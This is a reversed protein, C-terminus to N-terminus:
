STNRSFKDKKQTRPLKRFYDSFAPVQNEIGAPNVFCRRKGIALIRFRPVRIAIKKSGPCGKGLAGPPLHLDSHQNVRDRAVIFGGHHWLSADVAQEKENLVETAGCDVARHHADKKRTCM